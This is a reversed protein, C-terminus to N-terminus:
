EVVQDVMDPTITLLPLSLVTDGPNSIVHEPIKLFDLTPQNMSLIVESAQPQHKIVVGTTRGNTIYRRADGARPTWSMVRNRIPLGGQDIKAIQSLPFIMGRYMTPLSNYSQIVSRPLRNRIAYFATEYRDLDRAGLSFKGHGRFFWNQVYLYAFGIGLEDFREAPHDYRKENVVENIIMLYKNPKRRQVEKM